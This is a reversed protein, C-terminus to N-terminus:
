GPRDPSSTGNRLAEALLPWFLDPRDDMMFHGGGEVVRCPIGHRTLFARHGPSMSKEGGFYAKRLPLKVLRERLRGEKSERVLSRACRHLAKPDARELDRAYRALGPGPDKHLLNELMSRFVAFGHREFADLPLSAIRGSFVCDEAGLNGELSILAGARSGLLEAAHLGIVGGMSHGVVHVRGADLPDLWQVVLRAMGNM